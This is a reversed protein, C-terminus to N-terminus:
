FYDYFLFYKNQKIQKVDIVKGVFQVTRVLKIAVLIRKNVQSILNKVNLIIQIKEVSM